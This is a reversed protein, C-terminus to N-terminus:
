SKVLSMMFEMIVGWIVRITILLRKRSKKPFNCSEM